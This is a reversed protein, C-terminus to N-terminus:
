DFYILVTLLHFCAASCDPFREPFNSWLFAPLGPLRGCVASGGPRVPPFLHTFSILDGCSIQRFIRTDGLGGNGHDQAAPRAYGERFIGDTFHFFGRRLQAILLGAFFLRGFFLDEPVHDHDQPRGQGVAIIGHHDMGDGFM